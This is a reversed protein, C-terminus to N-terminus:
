LFIINGIVIGRTFDDGTIKNLPTNITTVIMDSIDRGGIQGM